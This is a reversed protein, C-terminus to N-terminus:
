SRLSTWFLKLMLVPSVAKRKRCCKMLISLAAAPSANDDLVREQRASVVGRDAQAFQQELGAVEVGHQITWAAGELAGAHLGDHQEELLPRRRAADPVVLEIRPRLRPLVFGRLSVSRPSNTSVAASKRRMASIRSRPAGCVISWVVKSRETLLGSPLSSIACRLGCSIMSSIAASSASLASTSALM